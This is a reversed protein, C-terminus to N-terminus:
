KSGLPSEWIEKLKELYRPPYLSIDSGKAPPPATPYRINIQDYEASVSLVDATGKPPGAWWAAAGELSEDLGRAGYAFPDIFLRFLGPGETITEQVRFKLPKSSVRLEEELACVFDRQTFM